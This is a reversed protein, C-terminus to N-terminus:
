EALELPVAVPDRAAIRKGIAAVVADRIKLRTGYLEEIRRCVAAQSGRAAAMRRYEGLAGARGCLLP